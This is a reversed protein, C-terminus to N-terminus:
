TSGRSLLAIFVDELSPRIEDMHQIAPLWRRITEFNFDPDRILVHIRNGFLTVQDEGLKQQLLHAAARPHEVILQYVKEKLSDKIEKPTGHILLRGEHLFGVQHCREAEDMYATSVLITVGDQLLQNLIDWFEKRSIPDVGNTPEDLFLIKPTHILACSLGLKQKMGGSLKGALRDQFPTLGSFALLFRIKEEREAKKLGYLDAYFTLNEVVTLDQYLGFRQSMYGIEEKIAEAQTVIDKGNVQAHGSTPNMITTLLRMTTTKGAGDPGVLGYIEGKSVNLNLQDVAKLSGFTKTLNETEIMNM